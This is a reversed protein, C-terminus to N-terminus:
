SELKITLNGLEYRVEKRTRWSIEEELGEIVEEKIDDKIDEKMDYIKEEIMESTDLELSSLVAQKVDDVMRDDSMTSVQYEVEERVVEIIAKRFEKVLNEMSM